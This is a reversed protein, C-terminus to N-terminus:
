KLLTTVEDDELWPPVDYLVVTDDLADGLGSRVSGESSYGADGGEGLPQNTKENKVPLGSGILEPLSAAAWAAADCESYLGLRVKYKSAVQLAFKKGSESFCSSTSNYVVSWLRQAVDGKAATMPYIQLVVECNNFEAGSFEGLSMVAFYSTEIMNGILELREEAGMTHHAIWSVGRARGQSTRYTNDKKEMARLVQPVLRNDVQVAYRDPPRYEGECKPQGHPRGTGANEGLYVPACAGNRPRIAM